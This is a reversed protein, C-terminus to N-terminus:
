MGWVTVPLGGAEEDRRFIREEWSKGPRRDFLALHGQEAGFADMSDRTQRLGERITRERGRRVVLCEIVVRQARPTGPPGSRGGVPWVIGLDM